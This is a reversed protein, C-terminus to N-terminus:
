GEHKQTAGAGVYAAKELECSERAGHSFKSAYNRMSAQVSDLYLPKYREGHNVRRNLSTTTRLFISSRTTARSFVQCYTTGIFPAQQHVNGRLDHYRFNHSPPRLLSGSSCSNDTKPRPQGKRRLCRARSDVEPESTYNCLRPHTQNSLELIPM